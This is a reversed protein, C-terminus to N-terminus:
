YTSLLYLTLPHPLHSLSSPYKEEEEEGVKKEEKEKMKKRRGETKRKGEGKYKKDIELENKRRNKYIDVVVM